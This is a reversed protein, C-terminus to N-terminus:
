DGALKAEAGVNWADLIEDSPVVTAFYLGMTELSAEHLHRMGGRTACCDEAVVVYFDKHCADRVTAEVCCHTAVGAVVVTRICNARLLLELRSDPFPSFRHKVVVLEGDAPRAEDVFDAGRSGPLCCQTAGVGFGAQLSVDSASEPGYEAKVHVVMLGASRASALLRSVAPLISQAFSLDEGRAGIAGDPDCFDRQLDVLVLATHTRDIRAGLEALVRGQKVAPRWGRSAAPDAGAWTALIDGSAVVTGFTEGIKDLFVEQRKAMPDAVSDAPVVVRYDLFFADRVTADVCGSTVVGTIIVTHIGNSRLLLDLATGWFASFRHKTIVVEGPGGGPEIGGYWEAGWSGEPCQSDPFERRMFTEALTGSLVVEDYTARVYVAFINLRHAEDQLAQVSEAMAPVHSLNYGSRGFLGEPHCFDNQVDIIVLATHAPDIREDLGLIRGKRV